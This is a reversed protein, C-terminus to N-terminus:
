LAFFVRPCNMYLKAGSHSMRMKGALSCLCWWFQKNVSLVESDTHELNSNRFAAFKLHVVECVNNDFNAESCMPLGSVRRMGRM